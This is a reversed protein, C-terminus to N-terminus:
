SNGMSGNLKQVKDNGIEDVWADKRHYYIETTLNACQLRCQEDLTGSKVAVDDGTSSQSTFPTGCDPCFERRVHNGNDSRDLFLKPQGSTYTFSSQSVVINTSFGSGTYRKCNICHCIVLQHYPNPYPESKPLDIRYTINKCLCSGTLFNPSMTSM